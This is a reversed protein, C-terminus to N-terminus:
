NRFEKIKGLKETYYNFCHDLSSIKILTFIVSIIMLFLPLDFKIINLMSLKFNFTLKFSLIILIITIIEIFISLSGNFILKFNREM